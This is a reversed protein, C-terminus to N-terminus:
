IAVKKTDKCLECLCCMVDESMLLLILGIILMVYYKILILSVICRNMIRMIYLLM